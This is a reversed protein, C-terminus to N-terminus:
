DRGGLDLTVIKHPGVAAALRGEKVAMPQQAQERLNTAFAATIPRDRTVTVQVPAASPNFARLIVADREDAKKIASLALASDPASEVAMFSHRGPLPADNAPGNTGVVVSPPALFRRGLACLASETPPAARPVFAFRFDWEGLCQAGPTPLSPGANGKRTALDERSLWGVSRLVTLAMRAVDADGEAAMVEYEMLGESLVSMGVAEDGADIVSQLPAANV